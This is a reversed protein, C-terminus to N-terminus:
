NATLQQPASVNKNILLQSCFRLVFGEQQLKPLERQLAAITEPHPHGIAIARGHKQAITRVRQFAASLAEDSIIHDLFVDRENHPLGAALAAAAGQSDATTRSDLFYLKRTNLEAMLWDMRQRDATLKSGGHNNVGSIWPHQDLISRLNQQFEAHPMRTNLGAEWNSRNLPEMPIHLIIEHAGLAADAAVQQAHPSNPIIALTLPYALASIKRASRLDYGLDDIVIAIEPPGDKTGLSTTPPEPESVLPTPSNEDAINPSSDAATSPTESTEPVTLADLM